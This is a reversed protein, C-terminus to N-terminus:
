TEHEGSLVVLKQYPIEIGKKAFAKKIGYRVDSCADFNENVTQTWLSARLGIGSDGLERVYVKVKPKGAAIEEETRLDLFAPHSGIVGAMVEMAEDLDCEYSVTVDIFSSAKTELFDSNEIKEKGIESNPIIIRSNTFTRIVTHRLTIDEVWGTIDSNILHIRDGVNFPRCMSILMGSILNSFSEQAALSLVLAVIGSGALLAQTIRSMGPIQATILFIGVVWTIGELMSRMFKLHIANGSKAFLHRIVQRVLLTGALILCIQLLILPWEMEELVSWFEGLAKM